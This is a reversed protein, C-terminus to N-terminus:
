LHVLPSTPTFQPHTKEFSVLADSHLQQVWRKTYSMKSAIKPISMFMLYKYRLVRQEKESNLMDIQASIQMTLAELKQKEASIEKELEDIKDICHVFPADVSHTGQSKEGFQPSSISSAFDKYSELNKEDSEIKKRLMNPMSLYEKATM